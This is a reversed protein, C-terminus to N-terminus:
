LAVSFPFYSSEQNKNLSFNYGITTKLDIANGGQNQARSFLAKSSTRIECCISVCRTIKLIEAGSTSYFMKSPINCLYPM